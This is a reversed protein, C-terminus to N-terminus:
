REILVSVRFEGKNDAVVDDNLALFLRGTAPAVVSARGGIFFPLSNGIRGILAGAPQQPLPADPARRRSATGGPGAVDEPKTSLQARGSTEFTVLDGERINLRTDTWRERADVVVQVPNGTPRQPRVEEGSLVSDHNSDAARFGEENGRWEARTIVGDGDRDMEKLRDAIPTAAPPAHPPPPPNPPPSPPPSPPQLVTIAAVAEGDCNGMGRAVIRYSGPKTYTYPITTPLQVIPYTVASGDQQDIFVAGCPNSGTITMKVLTGATVRADSVQIGAVVGRSQASAATATLVVVLLPLSRM